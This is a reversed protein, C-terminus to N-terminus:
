LNGSNAWHHVAYAESFTEGKRNKERYSYPYFLKSEFMKFYPYAKIKRTAYVPGAQYNLPHNRYLNISEELGDILAKFVEHEPVAGMIGMSFIGPDESATFGELGSILDEINRLCEFDCDLYVGGYNYLIEFRAIDAKQAPCLANDFLKQNKLPFINEENWTKIEWDPHLSEWTKGYEVFEDPMPSNGIWIRHFVKPIIMKPKDIYIHLIEENAISEWRFSYVETNTKIYNEIEVKNYDNNYLNEEENYNIKTASITPKLFFVVLVENNAVRIAEDLAKNYGPLHELLHRIYVVDYSNNDFPLRESSNLKVDIGNNIGEEFLLKCTEVGSYKISYGDNKYGFYETCCGCGADLLSKYGMREIYKRTFKKSIADFSGIWGKFIKMMKEDKLNKNWWDSSEDSTEKKDTELLSKEKILNMMAPRDNIASFYRELLKFNKDYYEKNVPASKHWLHFVEGQIRYHKGCISELTYRLADDEGGWGEFREDMGRIKYFNERTIVSMFTAPFNFSIEVDSVGINILDPLGQSIIRQTAAQTLKYGSTFPVIWPYDYMIPIINHLVEKSFVVDSDTIIFVDGSAQKAANNIARSRNFLVSDDLGICIELEPMLEQYRQRVKSWIFERQEDNQKKYPILVSIKGAKLDM